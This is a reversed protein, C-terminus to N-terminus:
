ILVKMSPDKSSTLPLSGVIAWKMRIQFSYNKLYSKIEKLVCLNDLHFLLVVGGSALFKHTFDFISVVYDEVLM